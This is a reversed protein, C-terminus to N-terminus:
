HLDRAIGAGDEQAIVFAIRDSHVARFVRQRHDVDRLFFQQERRGNALGALLEREPPIDARRSSNNSYISPSGSNEPSELSVAGFVTM